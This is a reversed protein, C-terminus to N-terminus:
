LETKGFLIKFTVSIVGWTAYNLAVYLTSAHSMDQEAAQALSLSCNPGGREHRDREDLVNYLM